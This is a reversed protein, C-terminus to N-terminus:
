LIHLGFIYNGRIIEFADSVFSDNERAAIKLGRVPVAPDVDAVVLALNERVQSGESAGALDLRSGLKDLLHLLHSPIDLDETDEGM